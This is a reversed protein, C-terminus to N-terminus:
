LDSFDMNTLYWSLLQFIVTSPKLRLFKLKNSVALLLMEKDRTLHINIGFIISGPKKGTPIVTCGLEALPNSYQAPKQSSESRLEQSFM